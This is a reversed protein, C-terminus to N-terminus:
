GVMYKKIRNVDSGEYSETVVQVRVGVGIMQEALAEADMSGGTTDIGVAKCFSALKWLCDPTLVFNEFIATDHEPERFRASLMPKGNKSTKVEAAECIVDYFGEPLPDRSPISSFDLQVNQSM